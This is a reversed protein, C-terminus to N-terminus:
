EFTICGNADLTEVARRGDATIRYAYFWYTSLSSNDARQKVRTIYGRLFLELLDEYLAGCQTGTPTSKTTARTAAVYDNLFAENRAAVAPGYRGSSIAVVLWGLRQGRRSMIRPSGM